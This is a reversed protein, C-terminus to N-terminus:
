RTVLTRKRLAAQLIDGLRKGPEDRGLISCVGGLRTEDTANRTGSGTIGADSELTRDAANCNPLSRTLEEFM